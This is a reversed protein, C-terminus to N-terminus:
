DQKYFHSHEDQLDKTLHNAVGNEKSHYKGVTEGNSLYEQDEEDKEDTGRHLYKACGKLIIYSWNLQLSM